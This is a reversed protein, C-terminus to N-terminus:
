QTLTDYIAQLASRWSSYTNPLYGGNVYAYYGHDGEDAEEVGYDSTISEIANSLEEENM